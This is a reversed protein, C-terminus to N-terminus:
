LEKVWASGDDTHFVLKRGRRGGTDQAAVPVGDAFLAELAGEVNLAGLSGEPRAFADTIGAGGFVKAKLGARTAGLALLKGVLAHTATDGFRLSPDSTGASPLLYHNVGGIRSLADWVCVSVCSGLITTVAAAERSAIMQGPHLYIAQRPSAAVRPSADCHGGSADGCGAFM